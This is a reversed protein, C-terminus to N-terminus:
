SHGVLNKLLAATDWDGEARINLTFRQKPDPNHQFRFDAGAYLTVLLSKLDPTLAALTEETNPAHLRDNLVLLTEDGRFSVLDGISPDEELRRSANLARLFITRLQDSLAGDLPQKRDYLLGLEGDTNDISYNADHGVLLTVPGKHVHSYDAVDVLVEDTTTPIWTNFTRFWTEPEIDRGDKLYFKLSIRHTDM